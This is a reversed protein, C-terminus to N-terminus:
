RAPCPAAVFNPHTGITFRCGFAPDAVERPDLVNDGAPRHGTRVWTVLDHFGAQLEDQTFDCHGTGRIARTVFLRGEGHALTRAAYVQEMSIPVFLDGIDHMSLVPIRPDGRVAPIGDLGPSAPTDASVRLVAQNLAIEAPSLSPDSDLQYVTHQNTTINGSAINETGGTLGPYLGFHFPLSSFPALSPAATWYAFASAFGPRTGGSRQQVAAGWAQGLATFSPLAGSGLGTGLLPLEQQVQQVFTAPYSAPVPASPFTLPTGTLAAATANVDLFFDFLRTDGLVGCVPMAAVFDHRYHEIAVATVQGGMSAGTMYVHRAPRKVLQDFLAILAHSDLVGQGVDYGNTQYSSAAWAFGQSIEYGRLPPSDVWLLTGAGRYGHAYLALDGNWHKPVEIRYSAGDVIGTYVRSTPKGRPDTLATFPTGSLDCNPDAITYGPHTSSPVPAGCTPTAAQAASGGVLATAILLAGLTSGLIRHIRVTAMRDEDRRQALTGEIDYSEIDPEDVASPV